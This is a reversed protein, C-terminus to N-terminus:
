YNLYISAVGLGSDDNDWSNYSWPESPYRTLDNDQRDIFKFSRPSDIREIQTEEGNHRTRYLLASNTQMALLFSSFINGSRALKTKKFEDFYTMGSENTKKFYKSAEICLVVRFDPQHGDGNMKEYVVNAKRLILKLLRMNMSPIEKFLGELFSITQSKRTAGSWTVQNNGGRKEGMFLEDMFVGTIFRELKVENIEFFDFYDICKLYSDINKEYNHNAMPVIVALKKTLDMSRLFQKLTELFYIGVDGSRDIDEIVIVVDKDQSEILGKLIKQLEFVRTAPSSKFFETFKDLFNIGSLSESIMSVVDTAIDIAISKSSKGDVKKIVAGSQGVQEAVDLVFGEWLNDRNPYKWADFEIWTKSGEAIAIQYLMTSKGVGFPGVLAIISRNPVSNIRSQFLEKQQSVDLLDEIKSTEDLLQLAKIM